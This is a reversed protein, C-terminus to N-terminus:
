ADPVSVGKEKYYRLAGPHFPVPSGVVASKLSIERAAAHIAVLEPTHELLVKTIQYALREDLREHAVLLHMEAAVPVDEPMGPYTDKGITGVFYFRGFKAVMPAVAEGHAVLRMKIGPTAALDLIAATPIGGNWVFAEIKHDKLAGASESVNLRDQGRLDKPTVGRAELVRLGKVETGSGPPGTSVRKGKLDAVTRIGTSELTVIHMFNSFLAAITRVAVKEGLGRLKGQAADWAHDPGALGLEIKGAHLLRLNDVGGPTTEATANAGPIHKSILGAIGGGLPYYVGGTPGTGISLSRPQAAGPRPLAGHVLAATGTLAATRLVQRRTVGHM